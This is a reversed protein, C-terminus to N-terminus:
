SPSVVGRHLESQAATCSHYAAFLDRLAPPIDPRPATM